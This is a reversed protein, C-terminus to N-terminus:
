EPVNRNEEPNLTPDIGVRINAIEALIMDKPLDFAKVLIAVAGAAAQELLPLIDGDDPVWGSAPEILRADEGEGEVARVGAEVVMCALLLAAAGFMAATGDDLDVAAVTTTPDVDDHRTITDFDVTVVSGDVLQVEAHDNDPFGLLTARQGGELTVGSGILDDLYQQAAAVMEATIQELGEALDRDAEEAATEVRPGLFDEAVVRSAMEELFADQDDAPDRLVVTTSRVEGDHNEKFFRRAAADAQDTTHPEATIHTYRDTRDVGAAKDRYDVDLVTSWAAALGAATRLPAPGQDDAPVVVPAAPAVPPAKPDWETRCEPCFRLGNELDIPYIGQCNPCPATPTAAATM